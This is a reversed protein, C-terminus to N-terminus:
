RKMLPVYKPVSSGLEPWPLLTGEPTDFTAQRGSGINEGLSAFRVKRCRLVTFLNPVHVTFQMWEPSGSALGKFNLM